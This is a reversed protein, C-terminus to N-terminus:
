NNILKVKNEIETAFPRLYEPLNSQMTDILWFKPVGDLTLEFYLGGWDGADPQGIVTATTTLLASPIKTSLDKVKEYKANDHIKFKGEYPLSSNPYIDLTDESLTGDTLKFIEICQEGGCFGYFHGFLIYNTAPNKGQIPNAINIQEKTCTTLIIL